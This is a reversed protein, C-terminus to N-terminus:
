QPVTVLRSRLKARDADNPVLELLASDAGAVVQAIGRARNVRLRIGPRYTPELSGMEVQADGLMKRAQAEDDPSLSIGDFLMRYNLEVNETNLKAMLAKVQVTVRELQAPDTGATDVSITTVANGPSMTRTVLGVAGGDRAVVALQQELKARAADTPEAGGRGRAIVLTDGLAMAGGRGVRGGGGGGIRGGGGVADTTPPVFTSRM